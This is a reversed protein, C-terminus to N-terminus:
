PVTSPERPLRARRLFETVVNSPVALALGGVIMSNVGIVRGRADALPGGSNGPALRVAAHVWRAPVFGDRPGLAHVLGATLAGTVGFPHGVALVVDGVRLTDSDGIDAPELSADVELAALDHQPDWAAVRADLRRGDALVVTAHRRAVHANTVIIGDATWVVGSGHSARDGDVVRATVRRLSAAVAVISDGLGTANV